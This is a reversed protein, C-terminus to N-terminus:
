LGMCVVRHQCGVLKNEASYDLATVKVDSVSATIEFKSKDVSEKEIVGEAVQINMYYFRYNYRLRLLGKITTSDESVDIEGIKEGNSFM